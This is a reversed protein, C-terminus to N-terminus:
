EWSKWEHDWRRFLYVDGVDVGYLRLPFFHPVSGWAGLLPALFNLVVPTMWVEGWCWSRFLEVRDWGGKGSKPPSRALWYTIPFSPSRFTPSGTAFSLLCSSFFPLGNAVCAVFGLPRQDTQIPCSFCVFLYIHKTSGPIKRRSNEM